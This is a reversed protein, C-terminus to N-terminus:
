DVSFLIRVIYPHYRSYYFCVIFCLNDCIDEKAGAWLLFKFYKFLNGFVVIDCSTCVHNETCSAKALNKDLIFSFKHPLATDM